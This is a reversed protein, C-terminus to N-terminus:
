RQLPPERGSFSAWAPVGQTKTELALSGSSQQTSSLSFGCHKTTRVCRDLSEADGHSKASSQIRAAAATVSAGNQHRQQHTWMANPRYRPRGTFICKIEGDRTKMEEGGRRKGNSNFGSGIEANSKDTCWCVCLCKQESSFFSFKDRKGGGM